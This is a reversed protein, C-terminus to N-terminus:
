LGRWWSTKKVAFEKHLPTNDSTDGVLVLYRGKESVWSDRDEDWFSTAYKKSITVTVNKVTEGAKVGVKTFGKLEKPARNISPSDQSVYVQVVQSGNVKGTNKIDVTVTIQDEKEGLALNSVEFSTYSLGHGFPFAVEKKTKEYYKYGIYVDEGYLARHKESKYNLYAPNDENRVPFSLPLKGSPNVNGFIVDAIANGSENGGYWAQVISSAEKRWPMTVPTGSQVVVVTNPNAAIVASILEDSGPPLDMTTRDYGESEWDANLGACLVVQDVSKAIEVARQLETKFDVVRECGMRIGGAGFATTGPVTFTMTPLTAFEIYVKHTKGKELKITSTEDRTGTGFFSDGPHQKTANDVLLKGDIYLKATGAVSLSFEFETSQDPTFEGEFTTYYLNSHIKPHHYDVLLCSSDAVYVTDIVERDKHIPPELYVKMTLGQKGDSTKTLRSLLPLKKWGPAGLTYKADPAQKRIGDLPTIAYYPLLSASGGGSIAAIDANPGIVAISKEKKFPLVNKDNKLLVIGDGAIKRLLAATEPTNVEHEPAHEPIGLPLTKKVLKLVQRVCNDLDFESLKGCGLAANVLKGRIYSTGPMELDLGAKIAETTSYTGFWDSMVMGDFGWEKRLVDGILRQSESCHEGNVLNYSTMFCGPDSDRMTIQFPLLYIERLARETVISNVAMRQDEQDNCVFHKPTAQVGTSQIGNVTAATMNGALVPDESFSEFGRGGLPSRQMNTTPGLIVSAGKAIAEHGQLVAGQKVLETNWTAALGTGCPLCAAPVGNFFKTGRVGNPGDSVRVAPIGLRSVAATHWFDTGSLLSIKEDINLKELVEEVDFDKYIAMPESSLAAKFRNAIAELM